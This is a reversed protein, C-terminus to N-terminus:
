HFSYAAPQEEESASQQYLVRDALLEEEYETAEDVQQQQHPSFTRAFGNNLTATQFALRAERTAMGLSNTKM